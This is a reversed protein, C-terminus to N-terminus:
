VGRETAKPDLYNRGIPFSVLDAIQLGTSNVRKDAFAIAFPLDRRWVNDGQVVRRFCAELERDERKGRIEIVCFTKRADDGQDKLFGFAQELCFTLAIDYPNGLTANNLRLALKDVIATVVCFEASGIAHNLDTLFGARITPHLLIRFDNQAKRIERSHLIVMDHGWYKFKVRLFDPGIGHRYSAKEFICFSLVLIPYQPNIQETSHDGSEDVYIIYESSM